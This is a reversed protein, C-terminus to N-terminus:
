RPIITHVVVDPHTYLHFEREKHPHECAISHLLRHFEHSLETHLATLDSVDHGQPASRHGLLLKALGKKEVLGVGRPGDCYKDLVAQHAFVFAPDASRVLDGECRFPHLDGIGHVPEEVM